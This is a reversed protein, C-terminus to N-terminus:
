KIHIFLYFEAMESIKQRNCLRKVEAFGGATEAHRLRRERLLDLTKLLDETVLEEVAGRAAYAERGCARQEDFASAGCQGLHIVIDFLDAVDSTSFFSRKGDAESAGDDERREGCSDTGEAAEIWAYFKAQLLHEGGPLNGSQVVSRQIQGEETVSIRRLAKRLQREAFLRVDRDKRFLM